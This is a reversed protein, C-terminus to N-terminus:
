FLAPLFSSSHLQVKMGSSEFSVDLHVIWFRPCLLILFEDRRQPASLSSFVPIRPIGDSLLTSMGSMRKIIM